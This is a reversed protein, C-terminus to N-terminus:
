RPDGRGEQRGRGGREELGRAASLRGGTGPPCDVAGRQELGWIPPARAIGEGRAMTGTDHDARDGRTGVNESLAERGSGALLVGDGRAGGADVLRVRQSRNLDAPVILGAREDRDGLSEDLYAGGLVGKMM